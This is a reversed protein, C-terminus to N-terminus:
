LRIPQRGVRCREARMIGEIDDAADNMQYARNVVVYDFEPIRRMEDRATEIRRRLGEPTETKRETLRRILEEESEPMLFITVADPVIRKIKQAGQVDIRMVVNKGTALAERVQAKPIGKYEGYVLSHELLEDAEILADFEERTVFFYDKGDVEGPRQARSTMTVVFWFECGVDKLRQLLTDKGVGSPGSVVVLLPRSQVNYPDGADINPLATQPTM